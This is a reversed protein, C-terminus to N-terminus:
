KGRIVEQPWWKGQDVFCEFKRERGGGEERLHAPSVGDCGCLTPIDLSLRHVLVGTRMLLLLTIIGAALFAASSEGDRGENEPGNAVLTSVLTSRLPGSSHDFRGLKMAM